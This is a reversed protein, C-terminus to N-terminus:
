PRAGEPSPGGAYGVMSESIYIIRYSYAGCLEIRRLLARCSIRLEKVYLYNFYAIQAELRVRSPTCSTGLEIEAARGFLAM